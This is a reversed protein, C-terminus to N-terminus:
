KVFDDIPLVETTNGDTVIIKVGPLVDEMTEFFLRKKTILPFNKYEEFMKNFRSVQGEAEAIRAAKAAEASQVIKDAEAEAAPLKENKYRNANNLATDAQQKASEVAKFANFVEETPPEVDQIMINVLQIGINRGELEETLESRIRSQIEGKATTMVDDVNYDSVATRICSMATDILIREPYSSNYLFAVPDSVKYEIYFDVDILNFDATIMQPNESEGETQTSGEITYGISAGHTTIDVKQVKQILPVKWHVGAGDVRQVKGFMTVVAQRDESVTYLGGFVLTLVLFLAMAGAFIFPCAKPFFDADDGYEAIENKRVAAGIIIAAVFIITVISVFWIM